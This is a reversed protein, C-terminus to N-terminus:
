NVIQLPLTLREDNSLMVRVTYNGAPFEAINLRTENTKSAHLCAVMQGASNFMCVEEIFATGDLKLVATASAPNPFLSIKTGSFRSIGLGNYTAENSLSSSGMSNKAYVRYYYTEGYMSVDGDSYTTTNSAVSDILSFNSNGGVSREIMFVNENSFSDTWILNIAGASYDPTATLSIGFDGPANAPIISFAGQNINFFVNDAARVRIYYVGGFNSADINVAEYGDNPTGSALTQIVNLSQSSTIYKCLEIIVEQCNIPADDTNSVDWQVHYDNVSEVQEGLIPTVVLFPGANASVSMSMDDSAVGGGNSNNDRVTLRFNLDRSYTAYSEGYATNGIIVNVLRPFTRSSDATPNWSRFIPANGTPNEPAGAPGLDMQEWCFTIADGDADSGSGTLVFPTEKPIVYGSPGADVTPANNNTASTTGCSAGGGTNIFSLMENILNGGHFYDDSNQQLDQPSCIGAYAMITSGSGPEWATSGNRNGGSCSGATGNFPHNGNFQHGMEHAVYDIDFADGIPASSGTVGRAKNNVSCVSGLSAVGGGGTSFVHGIDYNASGIVANVTNQNQGLMAFGNTNSYPDTSGNTYILLDNNGILELRVAFEKEYVGNVRNMTVVMASLAGSITGGHFNTYEGTCALALRYTRLTEGSRSGGRAEEPIEISEYAADEVGCTHGKTWKYFEMYDARYYSHIASQSSGLPDIYVTGKPTFLIAHLGKETISVRGSAHENIIQYTLIEPYKAALETAMIPSYHAIFSMLSGDPMPLQIYCSQQGALQSCALHAKVQELDVTYVASAYGTKLDSNAQLNSHQARTSVAIAFVIFFAFFTKM